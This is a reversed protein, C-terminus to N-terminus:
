YAGKFYMCEVVERILHLIYTYRSLVHPDEENFLECLYQHAPYKAMEATLAKVSLLYKGLDKSLVYIVVSM